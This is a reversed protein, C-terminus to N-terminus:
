KQLNYMWIGSKSWIDFFYCRQVNAENSYFICAANKRCSMCNCICKAPINFYLIHRSKKKNVVQPEENVPHLEIEKELNEIEEKGENEIQPDGGIEIKKEITHNKWLIGNSVSFIDNSNSTWCKRM